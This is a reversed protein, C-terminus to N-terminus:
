YKPAGDDAFMPCEEHLTWFTKKSKGAGETRSTGLEKRSFVQKINNWNWDRNENSAALKVADVSVEGKGTLFEKLFVAIRNSDGRVETQEQEVIEDATKETFGKFVAHGIDKLDVGDLTFNKGEIIFMMNKGVPINSGIDMFLRHEPNDRDRRVMFNVRAVNINSSAGHSKETADAADKKRNTHNIVLVMVGTPVCIQESLATYIPRMDDESIVKAKGKYNNMPEIIVLDFKGKIVKNKLAEIYAPDSLDISLGADMIEVMGSETVGAAFIGPRLVSDRPDELNMRLVRAGAKVVKNTFWDCIKTKGQGKPAILTGVMGKPFYGEAGPVWDIRAAKIEEVPTSPLEISTVSTRPFVGAEHFKGDEQPLNQQLIYVPVKATFKPLYKLDDDWDPWLILVMRVPVDATSVNALRKINDAVIVADKESAFSFPKGNEAKFHILRPLDKTFHEWTLGDQEYTAKFLEQIFEERLVDPAIVLVAGPDKKNEIIVRVPEYMHESGYVDYIIPSTTM